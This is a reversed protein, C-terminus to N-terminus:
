DWDKSGRARKTAGARKKAEVRRVQSGRTPRTARRPVPAVLAKEIACAIKTRADEINTLQDRTRSSTVIWLGDADLQNRIAALLRARAGDELGQVLNLDVRLEVKSAVKNVNQGGPGGARVAKMAIAKDPVQVPGIQLPDNM